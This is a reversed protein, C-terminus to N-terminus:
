NSTTVPVTTADVPMDTLWVTGVMSLIIGLLALIAFVQKWGFSNNNSM